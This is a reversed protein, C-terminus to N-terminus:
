LPQNFKPMGSPILVKYALTLAGLVGATIGGYKLAKKWQGQNKINKVIDFVKQEIKDPKIFEKSDKDWCKEIINKTHQYMLENSAKIGKKISDKTAKINDSNVSKIVNEVSSYIGRCLAEAAEKNKELLKKLGASDKVSDIKKLIAMNQKYLLNDTKDLKVIKEYVQKALKDSAKGDSNISNRATLYGVTGGGLAGLTMMGFVAGSGSKNASYQPYAYQASYQPQMTNSYTM